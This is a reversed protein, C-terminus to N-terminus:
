IGPGTRAYRHAARGARIRRAGTPKIGGVPTAAVRRYGSAGATSLQAPNCCSSYDARGETCRFPNPVLHWGLSCTWDAVSQLMFWRYNTQKHFRQVGPITFMQVVVIVLVVIYIVLAASSSGFMSGLFVLLWGGVGIASAFGSWKRPLIRHQAVLMPVFAFFALFWVNYPHFALILMVATLASVGIGAAIRVITSPTKNQPTKQTTM